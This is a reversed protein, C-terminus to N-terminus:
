EVTRILASQGPKLNFWFILNNGAQKQAPKLGNVAIAKAKVAFSLGTVTDGSTNTVKIRGDPLVTYDIHETLIRYDLFDKLTTVNLLGKQNFQHMFNLTRNFGNMAVITSDATYKWFGKGPKTWAPYCHNVEVAWDNIFVNLQHRSFFYNWLGESHIYVVSSTPWHYFNQTRTPHQWFDPKPYFDGFGSYMKEISGFFGYNLFTLYDEYYPNYFYRIGYKKWLSAAFNESGDCVLDERNNKELNNYGHDIWTPSNFHKKMYALASDLRDPTTTYQEPTHLCIENGKKHIQFLFDAFARDTKISSELSTFLGGSVKTNTISDPNDYFISKTVPIQYKVFGGIASDADTINESGFYTARHTKIDGWDAHETWIYTALFGDPNKMFRPLKEPKIGAFMKFTQRTKDGKKYVSASRDIKYDFTTTDLPFHLFPHDKEYDLNIVALRNQTNLQISSIDPCHYVAMASVTDGVSFGQKDLWYENQFHGTDSKRSSRFVEQLPMAYNILLASRKVEISAKYQQTVSLNIEPSNKTCYLMLKVKELKSKTKFTLTTKGNHRSSGAFKFLTFNKYDINKHNENYFYRFSNIFPNDSTDTIFLGEEGRSWIKYFSNEFLLKGKGLNVYGPLSNVDTLFSPVPAPKFSVSFDDTLIKSKRGKNWLYIKLKGTKTVDAPILVSDSFPTWTQKHSLLNKLKIGKWFATEGNNVISIVYLVDPYDTESYVFGSISLVTNKNQVTTPFLMEVGLGYPHLSDVFAAYNGSRATTSDIQASGLWHNISDTTELSNHYTQSRGQFWLLLATAGLLYRM